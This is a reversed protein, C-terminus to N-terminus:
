GTFILHFSVSEVMCEAKPVGPGGVDAGTQFSVWTTSENIIESIVFVAFVNSFTLKESYLKYIYLMM